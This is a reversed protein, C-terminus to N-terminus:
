LSRRRMVRRNVVIRRGECDMPDDGRVRRAEKEEAQDVSQMCCRAGALVDQVDDPAEGEACGVRLPQESLAQTLLRLLLAMTATDLHSSALDQAAKHVAVGRSRKWRFYEALLRYM